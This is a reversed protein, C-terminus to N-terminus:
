GRLAYWACGLWEHMAWFSMQWASVRPVLNHLELRPPEDLAVPAPTALIGTARFAMLARRMHWAHTVLFVSHIGAARLIAASFQANEWTNGSKTELWKPTIAFDEQLSAAMLAALSPDGTSIVGGSVLIPMGTRRALLVGAQERELTLHGVVTTPRGNQLVDVDDGSLIVIAAPPDKAPPTFTLGTELRTLLTGSVLPMAFLILGGLGLGLLFRGAPRRHLVAGLCAAALCNLPPILLFAPLAAISMPLSHRM